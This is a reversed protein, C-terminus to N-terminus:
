IVKFRELIQKCSNVYFIPFTITDERENNTSSKMAMEKKTKILIQNSIGIKDTIRYSLINNLFHFAGFSFILKLSRIIMLITQNVFILKFLPRPYNKCTKKMHWYTKDGLLQGKRFLFIKYPWTFFILHNQDSVKWNAHASM